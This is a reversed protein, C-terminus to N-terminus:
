NVPRHGRHKRGNNARVAFPQSRPIETPVPLVQPETAAKLEKARGARKVETDKAAIQTEIDDSVELALFVARTMGEPGAARIIGSLETEAVRIESNNERNLGDLEVIRRVRRVGEEGVVLGYQNKLHESSIVDGSFVNENVFVSDYVAICPRIGTWAGNEFVAQQTGFRLIVKQGPGGALTKRGILIDPNNTSLSRLMDALTSKGWGNEGFVLTCPGFVADAISRGKEFRGINQVYKVDKLPVAASTTQTGMENEELSSAM